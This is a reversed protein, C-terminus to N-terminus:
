KKKREEQEEKKEPTSLIKKAEIAERNRNFSKHLFDNKPVTEPLPGWQSTEKKERRNKWKQKKMKTKKKM